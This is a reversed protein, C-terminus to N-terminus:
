LSGKRVIFKKFNKANLCVEKVYKPNSLVLMPKYGLNTLYANTDPDEKILDKIFKHSDGHKEVNEKQIKLLGSFPAIFAKLNPDMKKYRAADTYIKIFFMYFIYFFLLLPLLAIILLPSVM